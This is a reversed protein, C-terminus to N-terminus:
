ARNRAGDKALGGDGIGPLIRHSHPVVRGTMMVQLELHLAAVVGVHRQTVFFRFEDGGRALAVKDHPRLELDLKSPLSVSDHSPIRERDGRMVGSYSSAQTM